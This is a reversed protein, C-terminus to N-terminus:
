EYHLKFIHSDVFTIVTLIACCCLVVCILCKGIYWVATSPFIQRIRSECEQFQQIGFYRPYTICFLKQIFVNWKMHNDMNWQDWARCSSLCLVFPESYLLTYRLVYKHKSNGIGEANSICLPRRGYPISSYCQICLKMHFIIVELIWPRSFSRVVPWETFMFTLQLKMPFVSLRTWTYTVNRMYLCPLAYGYLSIMYRPQISTRYHVVPYIPLFREKGQWLMLLQKHSFSAKLLFSCFIPFVWCPHFSIHERDAM